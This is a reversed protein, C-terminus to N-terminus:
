GLLYYPHSHPIHRGLLADGQHSLGEDGLGDLELAQSQVALHFVISVGKSRALSKEITDTCGVMIIMIRNAMVVM